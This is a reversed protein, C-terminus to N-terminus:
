SDPWRIGYIEGNFFVVKHINLEYLFKNLKTGDLAEAFPANLVLGEKSFLPPPIVIRLVKGLVGSLIRRTFGPKPLTPFFTYATVEGSIGLLIPLFDINKRDFEETLAERGKYSKPCSFANINEMELYTFGKIFNQAIRGLNDTVDFLGKYTSPLAEDPSIMAWTNILQM